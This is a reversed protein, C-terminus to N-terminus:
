AAVNTALLGCASESRMVSLGSRQNSDSIKMGLPRAKADTTSIGWHDITKVVGQLREHALADNM